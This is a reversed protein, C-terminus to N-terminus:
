SGLLDLECFLCSLTEIVEEEDEDESELPPPPTEEAQQLRRRRIDDLWNNLMGRERVAKRSGEFLAGMVQRARSKGDVPAAQELLERAHHFSARRLAVISNM